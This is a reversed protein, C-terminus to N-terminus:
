IIFGISYVKNLLLDKAPMTVQDRMLSYYARDGFHRISPASQMNKIINECAEINNTEKRALSELSSLDIEETQDLNFVGHTKPILKTPRVSIEEGTAEDTVVM